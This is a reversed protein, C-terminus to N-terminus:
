LRSCLAQDERLHPNSERSVAQPSNQPTLSISPFMEVPQFPQDWTAPLRKSHHQEEPSGLVFGHCGSKSKASDNKECDFLLLFGAMKM